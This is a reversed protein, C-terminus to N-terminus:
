SAIPLVKVNKVPFGPDNDPDSGLSYLALNGANIGDILADVESQPANGNIPNDPLCMYYNRGELKFLPRSWWDVGVFKAKFIKEKKEM